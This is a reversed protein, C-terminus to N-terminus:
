SCLILASVMLWSVWDILLLILVSIDLDLYFKKQFFLKRLFSMLNGTAPQDHGLCTARQMQDVLILEQIRRLPESDGCVLIELHINVPLLGSQDDDLM